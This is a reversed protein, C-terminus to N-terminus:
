KIIMNRMLFYILFVCFVFLMCSSLTLNDEYNKICIEQNSIITDQKEIIFNMNSLVQEYYRDYYDLPQVEDLIDINENQNQQLDNVDENINNDM